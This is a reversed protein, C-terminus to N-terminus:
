FVQPKADAALPSVYPKGQTSKAFEEKAQAVLKPDSLLDVLSAGLVKAAVDMGKFGLPHAACSTQSWHHSATGLPRAAVNLEALPAAASVEGIDSSATSGHGPGYPIVDTALGAQPAGVEKQLAKAFEQDREDFRPPGVRELEQQMLKGLVSNSIPDRVSALVTVKARTETGLAAGDAAKRMRGIMEEVSEINKDRLWVQVKAYDPIINAVKGGDKIARHIRATPHIHERMLSMAHEFLELADLASRGLWPSAAAHATKGFFEVETATLALRTGNSVQNKDDPHWSLVVDTDKFAGAMIMFTKGILIEEAPSGFVKITGPLKQAIRTQNAAVGAAVAATGLLNHGCGHGPADPARPDKKAEGAQQSLGPLADYEALIGVVPSGSGATAVFATPMGGVNRTVKFGEKELLDAMLSASKTERLSPESFDWIRTAVGQWRSRTQDLYADTAPIAAALVIATIVASM